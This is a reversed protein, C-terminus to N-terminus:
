CNTCSWPHINGQGSSLLSSPVPQIAPCAACHVTLYPVLHQVVTSILLNEPQLTRGMTCPDPTSLHVSLTQYQQTAPFYLCRQPLIKILTAFFIYRFAVAGIHIQKSTPQNHHLLHNTPINSPRLITPQNKSPM